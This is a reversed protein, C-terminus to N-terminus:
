LPCVMASNSSPASPKTAATATRCGMEATAGLGGGGSFRVTPPAAPAYGSGGFAVLVSGVTTGSLVATATAALGRVPAAIAVTPASTYGSGPNTMTISLTTFSWTVGSQAVPAPVVPDAAVATAAFGALALVLVVALARWSKM